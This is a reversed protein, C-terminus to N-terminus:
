EEHEQIKRHLKKVLKMVYKLDPPYNHITNRRMNDQKSIMELNEINFDKSNGNKFIVIYGPPINGNSQEWIYQHKFKWKGKSIKVRIYGDKDIRESGIARINHPVGGKKFKTKAASTYLGKKGKNFPEHGKPFRHKKGGESLKHIRGSEQSKLYEQSKKLGLTNAKHYVSSVKKGLHDAILQSPHDAYNVKLYEIEQDIWYAMSIVKQFFRDMM